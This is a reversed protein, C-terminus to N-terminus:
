GEEMRIARLYLAMPIILILISLISMAAASGFQMDSFGFLYINLPLIDASPPPTTGFLVFPTTFNNFHYIFSLTTAIMLSRKILPLTISFFTRTESAGDIHAADYVEKPISQLAGLIFLYFFPWSSWVNTMILALMAHPGILWFTNAAAPNVIGLLRDVLGIHQLFMFRWVIGSVFIPIAYPLLFLIRIWARGRFPRNMALAALMGMPLGIVIAAGTFILVEALSSWFGHGVPTVPSFVQLYNALGVFPATAWNALYFVNLNTLSTYVSVAIPMFAFILLVGLGPILMWFPVRQKHQM